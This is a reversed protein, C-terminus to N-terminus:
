NVFGYPKLVLYQVNDRILWDFALGCRVEMAICGFMNWVYSKPAALCLKRVKVPNASPHEDHKSLVNKKLFADNNDIHINPINMNICINLQEGKKNM